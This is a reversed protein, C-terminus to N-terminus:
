EASVDSESEYESPFDDDYVVKQEKDDVPVVEPESCEDGSATRQVLCDVCVCM